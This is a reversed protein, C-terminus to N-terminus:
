DAFDAKIQDMKQIIYDQNLFAVKEKTYAAQYEKLARKPKGEKEYYVGMLYNGIMKGPHEDEALKALDKLQDWKEKAIIANSIALIDNTRVNIELEYLEEIQEYKDELYQFYETTEENDILQQYDYQTIPRYIAFMKELASPIAKGV